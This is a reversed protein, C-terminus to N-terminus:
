NKDHRNGGETENQAKNNHAIYKNYYSRKKSKALMKKYYVAFSATGQQGSAECRLAHSPPSCYGMLEDLTRAILM